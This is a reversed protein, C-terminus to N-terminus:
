KRRGLEWYHEMDPKDHAKADIFTFDYNDTKTNVFRITSNSYWDRNYGWSFYFTGEKKPPKAISDTQAFSKIGVLLLFPFGFKLYRM